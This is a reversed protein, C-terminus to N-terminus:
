EAITSQSPAASPLTIQPSARLLSSDIILVTTRLNELVLVNGIGYTMRFANHDADLRHADLAAIREITPM